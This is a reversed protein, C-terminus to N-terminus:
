VVNYTYIEGTVFCQFGEPVEISYKIAKFDKLPTNLQRYTHFVNELIFSYMNVKNDYEEIINLNGKYKTFDSCNINIILYMHSQIHPKNTTYLSTTGSSVTKQFRESEVEHHLLRISSSTNYLNYRGSKTVPIQDANTIISPIETNLYAVHNDKLVSLM